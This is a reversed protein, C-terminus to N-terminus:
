IGCLHLNGKWIKHVIEHEKCKAANGVQDGETGIRTYSYMEKQVRPETAAEIEFTRVTM